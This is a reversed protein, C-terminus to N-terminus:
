LVIIACVGSIKIKRGKQWFVTELERKTKEREVIQQLGGVESSLESVYHKKSGSLKVLSNRVM